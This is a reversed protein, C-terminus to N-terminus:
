DVQLAPTHLTRPSVPERELTSSPRALNLHVIALFFGTSLGLLFWWGHSSDLVWLLKRNQGYVQVMWTASVPKKIEKLGQM